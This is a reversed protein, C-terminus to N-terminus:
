PSKTARGIGSLRRAEALVQDVRPRNTPDASAYAWSLRRGPGVLFDGGTQLPDEGEPVRRVPAGRAVLKAYRWLVGPRALRAWTTRGLGFAAYARRDPDAVLPFPLPRGALYRALVEPRSMSVAVVGAGLEQFEPYREAV